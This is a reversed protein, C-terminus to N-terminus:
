HSLTLDVCCVPSSFSATLIRVGSETTQATATTNIFGPLAQANLHAPNANTNNANNMEHINSVNNETNTNMNNVLPSANTNRKQFHSHHSEILQQM